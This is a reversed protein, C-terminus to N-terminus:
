KTAEAQFDFGDKKMEEMTDKLEQSNEIEKVKAVTDPDGNMYKQYTDRIKLTQVGVNSLAEAWLEDLKQQWTDGYAKQAVENFVDKYQDETGAAALKDKFVSLEEDTSNDILINFVEEEVEPGLLKTVEDIKEKTFGINKLKEIQAKTKDM